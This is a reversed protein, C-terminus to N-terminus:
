QYYKIIVIGSGGTGGTSNDFSVSSAGVGGNGSNATGNAGDANTNDRGGDGGAGYTVISGSISSAIGSGGTGPTNNVSTGGVSGNGGGGGASNTTGASGGGNGGGGGTLTGSDAIAGGLGTGDPASRSAYGGSGGTAVITNFYSNEGSSGSTELPSGTRNGIGGAGGSGVYINYTSNPTVSLTGSLVLGAGGGGGSGTDYGGGGGGGGGVVLYEISTTLPPATWTTSGSTTFPQIVLETPEPPVPSDSSVCYPVNISRVLQYCNTRMNKQYVQVLASNDSYYTIRYDTYNSNDHLVRRSRVTKNNSNVTLTFTSIHYSGNNRIYLTYTGPITASTTSIAGSTSNITITNYSSSTGGSKQLITYSRGSILANISSNGALITQTYVNNLGGEGILTTSYPTYGINLEFPQNTITEVWVNGVKNSGTPIDLLVSKANTSNWGSTSNAAESYNNTLTWNGIVGNVQSEFAMIYGTSGIVTGTTYCNSINFTGGETAGSIGGCDTGSISGNSYCNTITIIGSGSQGVIGGSNDGIIAGSSYCKSINIIGAGDGDQGAYAGIIGGAGIGTIAGTSYCKDINLTRTDYAANNGVIGGCNTGNIEGNSWCQSIFIGNGASYGVIGGADQSIIGSSSCFLILLSPPDLISDISAYAGIIGGCRNGIVGNSHCNTVYCLQNNKCFYKQGIWGAETALTSGNIANIQLNFVGLNDFGTSIDTGNQILGPYNTVNDITIIPITGNTKLSLSGFRLNSNNIIFYQNSSTFTIDTVFDVSSSYITYPWSSIPNWNIQDFSEQIDNGIQQIYLSAPAGVASCLENMPGLLLRPTVGTDITEHDLGEDFAYGSGQTIPYSENNVILSGSSNTLYVLHTRTFASGSLDRDMHPKTDGKIWRMPLSQIHDLHLGFHESLKSKISRIKESYHNLPITFYIVGDKKSDINKKANIVENTELIYNIDEESLIHHYQNISM